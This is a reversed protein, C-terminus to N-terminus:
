AETSFPNRGLCRQLRWYAVRGAAEVVIKSSMKSRGEQRETFTIPVEQFRLSMQCARAKMEVQFSYGESRIGQALLQRLTEARWCNFGGTLDRLRLGLLTRAYLSGGRSIMRRHWPWNVTRGGSVYRSGVAFDASRLTEFMLPIMEPPHSLDCDMQLFEEYDRELGWQFGHLYARGLGQKGPRHLVKVFPHTAAFEELLSGTGDPSNDDIFLVDAGCARVFPLVKELYTPVVTYENYTPVLVLRRPTTM